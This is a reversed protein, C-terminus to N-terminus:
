CSIGLHLLYQQLGDLRSDGEECFLGVLLQTLLEAVALDWMDRARADNLIAGCAETLNPIERTLVFLTDSLRKREEFTLPIAPYQYAGLPEPSKLPTVARYQEPRLPLASVFPSSLIPTTEAEMESHSRKLAGKSKGKPRETSIRAVRPHGTGTPTTTEPSPTRTSLSSQPSLLAGTPRFTEPTVSAHGHHRRTAGAPVSPTKMHMHEYDSDYTVFNNMESLAPTLDGPEHATYSNVAPHVTIGISRQLSQRYPCSHNQKPQGCLKCRYKMKPPETGNSMVAVVSYTPSPTDRSSRKSGGNDRNLSLTEMVVRNSGDLAAGTNGKCAAYSGSSTNMKVLLNTRTQSEDSTVPPNEEVDWSINGRSLFYRSHLRDEYVQGSMSKSHTNSSDELTDGKPRFISSNQKPSQTSKISGGFACIAAGM